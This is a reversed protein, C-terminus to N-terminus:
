TEADAFLVHTRIVEWNIGQAADQKSHITHLLETQRRATLKKQLQMGECADVLDNRTWLSYAIPTDDPMSALRKKLDGVNAM